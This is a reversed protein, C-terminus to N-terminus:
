PWPRENWITPTALTPRGVGSRKGVYAMGSLHM